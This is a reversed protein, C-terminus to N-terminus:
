DSTSLHCRLQWLTQGSAQYKREFPTMPKQEAYINYSASQGAFALASQMEEIYLRWNSRIEISGGLAILTPFLPSGHIRRKLHNKKPWPNPYLLFHKSLQWEANLVLRWFDDVDAQLLMYNSASSSRYQHDHKDLRSLSKDIGIILTDPHQEGLAATSEGVGCFSDLIVEGNHQQVRENAQEFAHLNHAAIPRLFESHLHRKVVQELNDHIGSQNSSVIRSNNSM